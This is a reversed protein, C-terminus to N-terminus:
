PRMGLERELAEIRARTLGPAAAREAQYRRRTTALERPLYVLPLLVFFAGVVCGLWFRGAGRTRDQWRILGGLSTLGRWDSVSLGLLVGLVLTTGIDSASTVLGIAYALAAVWLWLLRRRSPYVDLRLGRTTTRTTNHTM